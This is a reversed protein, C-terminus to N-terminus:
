TGWQKAEKTCIVVLSSKTAKESLKRDRELQRWADSLLKVTWWEARKRDGCLWIPVRYRTSWAIISQQAVAPTILSKVFRKKKRDFHTFQKALDKFGGEIVVHSHAMRSLRALEAEFRERMNYRPNSGKTLCGYFDSWEKREVSVLDQYGDISYDGTHLGVVITKHGDFLYPKQERSDVLIAFPLPAGGPKKTPKPTPKKPKRTATMQLSVTLRAATREMYNAREAAPYAGGRLRHSSTWGANRDPLIEYITIQCTPNSVLRKRVRVVRNQGM